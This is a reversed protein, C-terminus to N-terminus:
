LKILRYVQVGLGTHNFLYWLVLEVAIFTTALVSIKGLDKGVYSLDDGVATKAALQPRTVVAPAPPASTAASPPAANSKTDVTQVGGGSAYKFNHKKRNKKKAM